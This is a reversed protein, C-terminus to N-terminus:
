SRHLDFYNIPDTENSSARATVKHASFTHNIEEALREMAFRESAYHGLLIMSCGLTRAKLCDHFRAEGTVFADVSQCDIFQAASGCAVGVTTIIQNRDGIYALQSDPFVTQLENLLEHLSKPKVMTGFRGVGVPRNFAEDPHAQLVNSLEKLPRSNIVGLKTILQQNIGEWASDFATHSSYVSIGARALQWLMRGEPTATTLRKVSQFLIPHHTVIVNITHEIAEEAVDPTLTLCTLVKSVPLSEDGLLLGVNDWGEALELPARQQLYVMLDKVIM